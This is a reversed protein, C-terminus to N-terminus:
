VRLFLRRRYLARFLLGLLLIGIVSYVWAADRPGIWSGLLREFAFVACYRSM